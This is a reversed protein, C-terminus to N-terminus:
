KMEGIRRVSNDITKSKIHYYVATSRPDKHGMILQAQPIPVELEALFGGLTHRGKHSRIEMKIGVLPGLVKLWTNFEKLSIKLRNNRVFEVIAALRDHMIFNVDTDFKQYTM